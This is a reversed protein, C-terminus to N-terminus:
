PTPRESPMELHRATSSWTLSSGSRLLAATSRPRVAAGCGQGPRRHALPLRPFSFPLHRLQFREFPGLPNFDRGALSPWWGFALRAHVLPSGPQSAYVALARATHNLGSLLSDHSGVDDCFRFAVGFRRYTPCLARHGPADTGGPDFLLARVHPDALFRPYRSAGACPPIAFRLFRLLALHAALLGIAGYYRRLRPVLGIPGPPPFPALPRRFRRHFSSPSM